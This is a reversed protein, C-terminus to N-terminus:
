LDYAYLVLAAPTEGTVYVTGGSVAVGSYGRGLQTAKWLLKPGGEPWQKLLGKDPSKNDHRPGMWCPWAADAAVQPGAAAPGTKKTQTQGSQAAAPGALALLIGVASAVVLPYKSLM